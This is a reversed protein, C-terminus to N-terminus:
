MLLWCELFFFFMLEKSTYNFRFTMRVKVIMKTGYLVYLVNVMYCTPLKKYDSKQDRGVKTKLAYSVLPSVNEYTMENQVIGRTQYLFVIRLFVVLHSVGIIKYVKM